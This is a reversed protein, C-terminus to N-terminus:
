TKKKNRQNQAKFCERMNVDTSIIKDKMSKHWKQKDIM